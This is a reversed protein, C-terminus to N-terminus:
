GLKADDVVIAARFPNLTFTVDRVEIDTDNGADVGSHVVVHHSSTEGTARSTVNARYYRDSGIRLPNQEPVTIDYSAGFAVSARDAVQQPSLALESENKNRTLLM